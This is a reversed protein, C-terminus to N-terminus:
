LRLHRRAPRYGTLLALLLLELWGSSGGGSGGSSAANVTTSQSATDNDSATDTGDFAVSAEATATGAGGATAAVTVTASDGSALGNLSCTARSGLASCVSPASSSASAATAGSLNVMVTVATLDDPGANTVTATYQIQRGSVVPDASDSIDISADSVPLSVIPAMATDNAAATDLVTPDAVRATPSLSGAVATTADITITAQGSATLADIACTVAGNSESCSGQSAAAGDFALGTGLDIVVETATSDNPGDNSVVATLTVADGRAVRASDPALSVGLDSIRRTTITVSETNDASDPDSEHAAVSAVLADSSASSGATMTFAVDVQQGVPVAGLACDISAVGPSCSGQTASPSSATTGAPLAITLVVASAAYPGANEVRVTQSVSGDLPLTDALSPLSLETMTVPVPVSERVGGGAASM